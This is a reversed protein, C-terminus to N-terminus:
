KVTFFAVEQTIQGNIGIGELTVQYRGKEDSTYFELAAMGNKDTIIDPKWFLPDRLDKTINEKKMVYDPSYFAKPAPFGAIKKRTIGTTQETVKPFNPNKHNSTLFIIGFCIGQGYMSEGFQNAMGAATVGGKIIQVGTLSRPDIFSLDEINQSNLLIFMPGEKGQCTGIVKNNIVKVGVFRSRLYDTLSMMKQLEEAEITYDPPSAAFPYASGPIVPRRKAAIEVTKLENVKEKSRIPDPQDQNIGESNTAKIEIRNPQNVAGAKVSSVEEDLIIQVNKENGLNTVRIVVETSDLVSFNDFKFIGNENAVTDILMMNKAAFLSLKAGAMPKGNTKFVKGGISLSREPILQSGTQYESFIENWAFSGSTKTILHMDLEATATEDKHDSLFSQHDNRQNLILSSWISQPSINGDSNEDAKAVSVSYGGAIGTGAADTINLKIKVPERTGYENQDLILLNSSKKEPMYLFRNALLNNETSFLAVENMGKPLVVTPVKIVSLGALLSVPIVNSISGNAQFVLQVEKMSKVTNSIRVMLTDEAINNIALVYGTDLVIPLDFGQKSLNKELVASYKAEKKPSLAFLGMGSKGTTFEAVKNNGKDIVYGNAPIPNGQADQSKVVVKSRLGAVLSGGEPYFQLSAVDRSNALAGANEKVGVNLNFAYLKKSDHEMLRTYVNFPYIGKKFKEGSLILHGSAMGANVPLLIKQAQGEGKLIEIHVIKSLASLQNNYGNVLYVKYWVTDGIAYISKDFHVHVKEKPHDRVYNEFPLVLNYKDPLKLSDSSFPKQAAANHIILSIFLILCCYKIM